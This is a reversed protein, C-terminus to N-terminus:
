RAISDGAEKYDAPLQKQRGLNLWDMAQAYLDIASETESPGGSVGRGRTGVQCFKVRSMMEAVLYVVHVGIGLRFGQIVIRSHEQSLFNFLNHMLISDQEFGCSYYGRTELSRILERNLSDPPEYLLKLDYVTTYFFHREEFHRHLMLERHNAQLMEQVKESSYPLLHEGDNTRGTRGARQILMNKDIWITKLSRLGNRTYESLLKQLGSDIVYAANPVTLGNAVLNTTFVIRGKNGKPEWEGKRYCESTIAEDDKVLSTLRVPHFCDMGNFKFDPMNFVGSYMRDVM